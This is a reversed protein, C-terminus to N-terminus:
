KTYESQASGFWWTKQDVFWSGLPWLNSLLTHIVEGFVTVNLERSRRLIGQPILLTCIFYIPMSTLVSQLLQLRSGQNLLCSSASLRREIRDVVPMLESITPRSTGMSLGLYTFPLSGVSCVLLSAIRSGEVESMNLPIMSSKSFNVKLGTSVASVELMEKLAILQSDVAPLVILTGDVYQMIPYDNSKTPILLTLINRRYMDNVISQLLDVAIVFLLPSM